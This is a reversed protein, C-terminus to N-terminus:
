RRRSLEVQQSFHFCHHKNGEHLVPLGSASRATYVQEQQGQMGWGLEGRPLAKGAAAAVRFPEMGDGGQM